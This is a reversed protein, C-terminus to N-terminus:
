EWGLAKKIMTIFTAQDGVEFPAKIRDDKTYFTKSEIRQVVGPIKDDIGWIKIDVLGVRLKSRVAEITLRGDAFEKVKVYVDMGGDFRKGDYIFHFKRECAIDQNCPAPYWKDTQLARNTELALSSM